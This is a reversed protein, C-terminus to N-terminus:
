IANHWDKQHLSAIRGEHARAENLAEIFKMAETGQWKLREDMRAARLFRLLDQTDFKATPGKRARLTAEFDRCIREWWAFLFRRTFACDKNPAPGDFLRGRDRHNLQARNLARQVRQKRAAPRQLKRLFAGM